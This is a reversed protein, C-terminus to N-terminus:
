PPRKVAAPKCVSTLAMREVPAVWGIQEAPDVKIGVEAFQERMQRAVRQVLQDGGGMDVIEGLAVAGCGQEGGFQLRNGLLMGTM